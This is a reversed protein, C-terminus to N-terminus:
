FVSAPLQTVERNNTFNREWRQACSHGMENECQSTQCWMRSWLVHVFLPMLPCFVSHASFLPVSLVHPLSHGATPMHQPYCAPHINLSSFLLGHTESDSDSRSAATSTVPVLKSNLGQYQSSVHATSWQHTTDNICRSQNEGRPVSHAQLQM